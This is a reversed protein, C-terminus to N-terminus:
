SLLSVGLLLVWGLVQVAAITMGVVLRVRGKSVLSTPKRWGYIGAGLAAPATVLTFPWVLLPLIALGLVLRDYLMRSAVADTSQSRKTSICNPCTTGEPSEIGCVTCLYRGCHDCTLVAENEDHYFCTAGAEVKAAVPKPPAIVADLAPYTVIEMSEQCNTCTASDGQDFAAEELPKKCSPCHIRELSGPIM